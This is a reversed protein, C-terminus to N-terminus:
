RVIDYGKSEFLCVFQEDIFLRDEVNSVLYYDAPKLIKPKNKSLDIVYRDPGSRRALYRLEFPLLLLPEAKDFIGAGAKRSESVFRRADSLRRDGEVMQKFDGPPPIAGKLSLRRFPNINPWIFYPAAMGSQLMRENYSIRLKREEENKEDMDVYCLFRGYRDIIEYAFAMFFRFEEGQDTKAKVDYDVLDELACQAAMAHDHHNAATHATLKPILHNLLGPGLM